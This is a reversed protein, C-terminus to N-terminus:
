KLGAKFRLAAKELNESYATLEVTGGSDRAKIIALAKGGSTVVKTMTFGLNQNLDPSCAGLFQADGILAFEILENENPCLLGNKDVVNVEIHAIGGANLNKVDPILLIKQAQGATTVKYSCAENGKNLGKVEICGSTYEFNWEIIGNEFDAKKRNGIKKGNILLQVEECTTFIAAKVNRGHLHDFNLHSAMSPFSWRGRAYDPKISQDYLALYVFPEETWISKRFYANPKM